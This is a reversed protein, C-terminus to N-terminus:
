YDIVTIICLAFSGKCFYAFGTRGRPSPDEHGAFISTRYGERIESWRSETM